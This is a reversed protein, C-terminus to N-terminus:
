QSRLSAIWEQKRTAEHIADSRECHRDGFAKRTPQKIISDLILVPLAIRAGSAARHAASGLDM